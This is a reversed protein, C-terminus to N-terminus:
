FAVDDEVEEITPQPIPAPPTMREILDWLPKCHKCPESSEHDPDGYVIEGAGECAECQSALSRLHPIAQEILDKADGFEWYLYDCDARWRFAINNEEVTPGPASLLMGISTYRDESTLPEVM